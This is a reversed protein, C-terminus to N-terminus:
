EFNSESSISFDEFKRSLAPSYYRDNDLVSKWVARMYDVEQKFRKQKEPTDEAGRSKSELHYAEAFPTWFNRYGATMVKLCFDVDNFAVTLDDENLGGVEEYIGKRVLLCAATVASVSHPILLRNFYGPSKRQFYKHSHGAVGGIGLVVGAHQITDDDFYLKAGVCGIEPRLAHSVMESLWGDSIIVIDNNILGVIEGKAQSVAYNNIASFNFPHNYDIVRLNDYQETLESFLAFTEAKESNNNVIIIEFKKYDTHEIISTVCGRVLDGMDKTPIILSVLPQDDPIPYKVRFHPASELMSVEVEPEEDTFFDQVAKLGRQVAYSKESLTKATSGSVARWHYLVRPIHYIQNSTLGRTFRLYLDHDQAGEYGLRWGGIKRLHDTELVTLHNLYNQAYFLDPNWDPKFYPDYRNGQDDLKDEDSYIFKVDPHDLIVRAVEILADPALTDDHDMLVAFQGRAMSLATNSAASINGNEGRFNVRIRSDQESLEHLMAITAKSDSCDDAICLEWNTYSQDLLSSIADQLWAPETNFTPMLVSFLLQDGAQEVVSAVKTDSMQLSPEYDIYAKYAEAQDQSQKSVFVSSYRRYQEEVSDQEDANSTLNNLKKKLRSLAFQESVKILSVKCEFIYAPCECPDFRVSVPTEAFYILRKSVRGSSLNIAHANTETVGQGYDVYFKGLAEPKDSLLYVEAMYWGASPMRKFSLQFFPDEGQSIWMGNLRLLQHAPLLSPAFMMGSRKMLGYKLRSIFSGQVSESSIDSYVRFYQISFLGSCSCPDFRISVPPVDFTLESVIVGDAMVELDIRTDDSYGQGYDIYLAVSPAVEAPLVLRAQVRYNGSKLPERFRLVFYPDDGTSLWGEETASLDNLPMFWTDISNM